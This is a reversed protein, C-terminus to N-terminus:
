KLNADIMQQTENVVQMSNSVTQMAVSFRDMVMQIRLNLLSTGEGSGQVAIMYADNRLIDTQIVHLDAVCALATETSLQYQRILVNFLACQEPSLVNRFELCPLAPKAEKSPCTPCTDIQALASGVTGLLLASGVILAALGKRAILATLM